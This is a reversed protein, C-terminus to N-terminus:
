APVKGTLAFAVSVFRNHNQNKGESLGAASFSIVIQNFPPTLENRCM